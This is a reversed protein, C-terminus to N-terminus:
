NLGGELRLRVIKNKYERVLIERSGVWVVGWPLADFALCVVLKGDSANWVSLLAGEDV